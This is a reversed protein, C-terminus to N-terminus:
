AERKKLSDITKIIKEISSKGKGVDVIAVAASSINVGCSAGLERKSKVYIYPTKKEECLPPLHAVIEEPEVDESIYVLKALGREIMKTVENTGKKIKGTDRVLELAELASNELDKSVDFKVYIPKAM